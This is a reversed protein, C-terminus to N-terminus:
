RARAVATPPRPLSGASSTRWALQKAGAHTLEYIAQVPQGDSSESWMQVKKGPAAVTEEFTM